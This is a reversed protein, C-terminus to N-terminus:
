DDNMMRAAFQNVYIVVDPHDGAINLLDISLQALQKENVDGKDVYLQLAELLVPQVM